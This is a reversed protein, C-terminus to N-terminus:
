PCDSFIGPGGLVLENNAERGIVNGNSADIYIKVNRYTDPPMEEEFSNESSWILRTNEDEEWSLEEKTIDVNPFTVSWQGPERSQHQLVAVVPNKAISDPVEQRAIGVADCETIEKPTTSLNSCGASFLLLSMVLLMTRTIKRM